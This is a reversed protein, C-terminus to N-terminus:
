RRWGFNEFIQYWTRQLSLHYDTHSDKHVARTCERRKSKPVM